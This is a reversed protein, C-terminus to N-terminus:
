WPCNWRCKRSVERNLASEIDASYFDNV